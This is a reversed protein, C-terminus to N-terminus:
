AKTEGSAEFRLPLYGYIQKILALKVYKHDYYILWELAASNALLRIGRTRPKADLWTWHRRRGLHNM